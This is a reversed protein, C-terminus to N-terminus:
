LAMVKSNFSFHLADFVCAEPCIRVWFEEMPPPPPPPRPVSESAIYSKYKIKFFINYFDHQLYVMVSNAVANIYMCIYNCTGHSL